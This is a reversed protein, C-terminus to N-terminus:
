DSETTKEHFVHLHWLGGRCVPVAGVIKQKWEEVRSIDFAERSSEGLYLGLGEDCIRHQMTRNVAKGPILPKGLMKGTPWHPQQESM